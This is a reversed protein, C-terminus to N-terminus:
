VTELSGLLRPGDEFPHEGHQPPRGRELLVVPDLEALVSVGLVGLRQSPDGPLVDDDTEPM